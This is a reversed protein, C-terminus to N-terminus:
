HKIHLVGPAVLGLLPRHLFPRGEGICLACDEEIKLDPHKLTKWFLNIWCGQSSGSWFFVIALSLTWQLLAEDVLLIVEITDLNEWLGGWKESFPTEFELAGVFTSGVSKVVVESFFVIAVILAMTAFTWKGLPASWHHGTLSVLGITFHPHFDPLMALQQHSGDGQWELVGLALQGRIHSLGLICTFRPFFCM